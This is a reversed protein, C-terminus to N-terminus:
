HFATVIFTSFKDSKKCYPVRHRESLAKPMETLGIYSMVGTYTETDMTNTAGWKTDSSGKQCYSAFLECFEDDFYPFLYDKEISTRCLTFVNSASKVDSNMSLKREKTQLSKLVM